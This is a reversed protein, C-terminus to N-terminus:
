ALLVVHTNLITIIRPKGWLSLIQTLVLINNDPTVGGSDEAVLTAKLVSIFVSYM